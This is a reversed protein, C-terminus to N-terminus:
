RQEKEIQQRTVDESFLMAGGITGDPHRWPVMEWHLWDTPGDAARFRGGDAGM